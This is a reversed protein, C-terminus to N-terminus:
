TVCCMFVSEFVGFGDCGFVCVRVCMNVDEVYMCVFVHSVSM